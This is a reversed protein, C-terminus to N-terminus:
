VSETLWQGILRRPSAGLASGGADGRQRGPSGAALLNGVNRCRIPLVVGVGGVPGAGASRFEKVGAGHLGVATARLNADDDSNTQRLHAAVLDLDAQAQAITVNPHLRGIVAM